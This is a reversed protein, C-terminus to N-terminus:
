DSVRLQHLVAAAAVAVSVLGVHCPPPCFWMTCAYLIQLYVALCARFCVTPHFALGKVRASKTEFKILM